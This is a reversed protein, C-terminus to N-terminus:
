KQRVDASASPCREDAREYIFVTDPDSLLYIFEIVKMGAAYFLLQPKANSDLRTDLTSLRFRQSTRAPRAVFTCNFRAQTTEKPLDHIKHKFTFKEPGPSQDCPKRRNKSMSKKLQIRRSKFKCPRHLMIIQIKKYHQRAVVNM